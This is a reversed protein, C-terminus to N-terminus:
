PRELERKLLNEFQDAPLSKSVFHGRIQDCGSSKLFELQERTEVGEALSRIKLQRSMSILATVIAATDENTSVDEIFTRDIKVLAARDAKRFHQRFHKFASIRSKALM